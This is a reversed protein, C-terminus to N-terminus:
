SQIHSIGVAHEEPSSSDMVLTSSLLMAGVPAIPPGEVTAMGAGYRVGDWLVESLQRPYKLM